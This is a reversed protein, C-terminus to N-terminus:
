KGTPKKSEYAYFSRKTIKFSHSDNKPQGKWEDNIYHTSNSPVYTIISTINNYENFSVICVRYQILEEPWINTLITSDVYTNRNLVSQICESMIVQDNQDYYQILDLMHLCIRRFFRQLTVPNIDLGFVIYFSFTQKTKIIFINNQLLIIYRYTYLFM